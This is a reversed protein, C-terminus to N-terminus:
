KKKSATKGKSKTDKESDKSDGNKNPEDDGKDDKDASEKSDKGSGKSDKAKSDKDDKSATKGDSKKDSKDASKKDDKDASKKDSKDSKDDGKDSKDDKDATKDSDSEEPEGFHSWDPSNDKNKKARALTLKHLKEQLDVVRKPRDDGCDKFEGENTTSNKSCTAKISLVGGQTEVHFTYKYSLRPISSTAVEKERTDFTASGEGATVVFGLEEAADRASRFLTDEKYKTKEEVPTYSTMNATSCAVAFFVSAVFGAIFRAKV